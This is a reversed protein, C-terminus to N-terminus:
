SNKSKNAEAQANKQRVNQVNTESAFETGFASAGSSASQANQQKVKQVNTESAFETGFNAVNAGAASKNPKQNKFNAM